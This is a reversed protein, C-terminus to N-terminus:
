TCTTGSAELAAATEARVWGRGFGGRIAVFTPMSAELALLGAGAKPSREGLTVLQGALTVLLHLARSLSICIGHLGHPSSFPRGRVSRGLRLPDAVAPFSGPLAFTVQQPVLSWGM